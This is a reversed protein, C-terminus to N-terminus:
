QGLAAALEPHDAAEATEEEAPPEVTRPGHDSLTVTADFAGDLVPASWQVLLDDAASVAVTRGERLGFVTTLRSDISRQGQWTYDAGLFAAPADASEASLRLLMTVLVDTLLPGGEDGATTLERRLYAATGEGDDALAEPLGPVDGTWIEEATFFVTRVDDERDSAFSTVARARGVGDRFDVEGTLTLVVGDRYPATVVFDAGGEQRNRHLLDALVEAEAPTVRDGAARTAAEATCGALLMTALWLVVLRSRMTRLTPM